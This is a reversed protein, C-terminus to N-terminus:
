SKSIKRLPFKKTLSKFNLLLHKQTALSQPLFKNEAPLLKLILGLLILHWQYKVKGKPSNQTEILRHTKVYKKKQYSQNGLSIQFSIKHILWEQIEACFFLIKSSESCSILCPQFVSM